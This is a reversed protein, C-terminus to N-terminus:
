NNNEEHMKYDEHKAKRIGNKTGCFECYERFTHSFKGCNSCIYKYTKKFLKKEIM